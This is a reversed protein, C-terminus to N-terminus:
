MFGNLLLSTNPQWGSCIIWIFNISEIVHAMAWFALKQKRFYDFLEGLEGLSVVFWQYFSYEQWCAGHFDKGNKEYIVIVYSHIFSHKWSNIFIMTSKWKNDLAHCKVDFDLVNKKLGCHYNMRQFESLIWSRTSITYFIKHLDNTQWLNSQFTHIRKLLHLTECILLFVSCLLFCAITQHKPQFNHMSSESDKWSNMKIRRTTVCCDTYFPIATRINSQMEFYIAHLIISPTSLPLFIRVVSLSLTSITVFFVLSSRKQLNCQQFNTPTGFQFRHHWSNYCKSSRICWLWGYGAM